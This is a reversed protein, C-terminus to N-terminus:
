NLVSEGEGGGGGKEGMNDEREAEGHPFLPLASNQINNEILM